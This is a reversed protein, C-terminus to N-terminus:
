RNEPGRPPSKAISAGQGVPLNVGVFPAGTDFKFLVMQGGDLEFAPVRRTSELPVSVTDVKGTQQNLVLLNRTEPADLYNLKISQHCESPTGAPDCLGNLLMVYIQGSHKTEDFSEDLVKFWAMVVDGKLGNNRTGTNTITWGRLWPDNRDMIHTAFNSGSDDVIDTPTPNFTNNDTHKGRILFVSAETQGVYRVSPKLRTLTPGLKRLRNNIDTVVSYLPGPNSDGGPPTFLASAGTNYTFNIFFTCGFTVGAFYNLYLESPSPNRRPPTDSESHYTQTYLGTPKGYSIGFKRYQQLSAYLYAPSDGPLTENSWPYVDQCLMDPDSTRIYDNLENVGIQGGWNNCFLITDPFAGRVARYWAAVSARISADNFNHEDGLSLAVLSPMYNSEGAQPPMDSHSGVWRAWQFGPAPGLLSPNWENWIWMVTTFKAAQVTALHFVDNKTSLACSQVGRDLLIRHGKGLNQASVSAVGTMFVAALLISHMRGM